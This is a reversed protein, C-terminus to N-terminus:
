IRGRGTGPKRKPLPEFIRADSVGAAHALDFVSTGGGTVGFTQRLLSRTADADGSNLQLKELALLIKKDKFLERRERKKTGALFQMLEGLAAKSKESLEMGPNESQYRLWRLVSLLHRFVERDRFESSEHFRPALRFEFKGTIYQRLGHDALNVREGDVSLMLEPLKESGRESLPINSISEIHNADIPFQRFFEAAIHIDFKKYFLDGPFEEQMRLALEALDGRSLAPANGSETVMMLDLDSAIRHFDLIEIWRGEARRASLEKRFAEVGGAKATEQIVYELIERSTGGYTLLRMSSARALKRAQHIEFVLDSVEGGLASLTAEDLGEARAMAAGFFLFILLCLRM